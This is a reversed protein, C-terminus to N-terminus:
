TKQILLNHLSSNDSNCMIVRFQEYGRVPFSAPCHFGNHYLTMLYLLVICHAIYRAAATTESPLEGTVLEEFTVIDELDPVFRGVFYYILISFKYM